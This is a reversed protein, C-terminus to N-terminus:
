DWGVTGAIVANVSRITASRIRRVGNNNYEALNNSWTTLVVDGHEIANKTSQANPLNESLTVEATIRGDDERRLDSATGLVSEVSQEFSWVLPIPDESWQLSGKELVVGPVKEEGEWSITKRM